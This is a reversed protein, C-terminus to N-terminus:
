NFSQSVVPLPSSFTCAMARAAPLLVLKSAHQVLSLHLDISVQPPWYNAFPGCGRMSFPQLQDCHCVVTNEAEGTHLPLLYKDTRNLAARCLLCQTTCMSSSMLQPCATASIFPALQIVYNYILHVSSPFKISLRM